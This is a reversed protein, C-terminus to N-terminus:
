ARVFRAETLSEFDFSHKLDNFIGRKVAPEGSFSEEDFFIVAPLCCHSVALVVVHCSLM